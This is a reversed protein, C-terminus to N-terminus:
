LACRHAEAPPFAECLVSPHYPNLHDCVLVITEAQHFHVEVLERLVTAFDRKHPPPKRALAPQLGRGSPCRELGAGASGPRVPM